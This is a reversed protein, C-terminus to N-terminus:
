RVMARLIGECARPVVMVIAGVAAAITCGRLAVAGWRIARAGIRPLREPRPRRPAEPSMTARIFETQELDALDDGFLLHMAQPTLSFAGSATEDQTPAILSLDELRAPQVREGICESIDDLTMGEGNTGGLIILAKADAESLELLQSALWGWRSQLSSGAPYGPDGTYRWEIWRWRLRQSDSADWLQCERYLAWLLRQLEQDGTGLVLDDLSGMGWFLRNLQGFAEERHAPTELRDSLATLYEAWQRDVSGLFDSIQGLRHQVRPVSM